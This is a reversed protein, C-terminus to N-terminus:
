KCNGLIQKELETKFGTLSVRYQNNIYLSVKLEPFKINNKTLSFHNFNNFPKKEVWKYNGLKIVELDYPVNNSNDFFVSRLEGDSCRVSGIEEKHCTFLNKDILGLCQSYNFKKEISDAHSFNVVFTLFLIILKLPKIM